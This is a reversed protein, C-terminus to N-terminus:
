TSNHQHQPVTRLNSTDIHFEHACDELINWHANAIRALELPGDPLYVPPKRTSFDFPGVILDETLNIQILPWKLNHNRQLALAVREQKVARPVHKGQDPMWEWVDPSFCCDVPARVPTDDPNLKFRRTAYTGDNKASPAYTQDWDVQILQWTTKPATTPEWPTLPAAILFLKHKSQAIDRFLRRILRNDSIQSIDKPSM